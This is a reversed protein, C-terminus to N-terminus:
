APPDLVVASPDEEGEITRAEILRRGEILAQRLREGFARADAVREEPTMAALRHELTGTMDVEQRNRWRHGQRNFLWVKAAGVDPPHHAIYPAYIPGGEPTGQFIKVAPV